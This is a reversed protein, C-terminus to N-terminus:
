ELLVKALLDAPLCIARRVLRARLRGASARSEQKFPSKLIRLFRLATLRKRPQGGKPGNASRPRPPRADCVLGRGTARAFLRTGFALEVLARAYVDVILHLGPSRTPSFVSIAELAFM